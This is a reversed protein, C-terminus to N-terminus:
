GSHMSIEKVCLLLRHGSQLFLTSSGPHKGMDIGSATYSRTLMRPRYSNECAQYQTTDNHAKHYGILVDIYFVTKELIAGCFYDIDNELVWSICINM